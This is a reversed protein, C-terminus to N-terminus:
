PSSAARWDPWFNDITGETLRKQGGGDANMAYIDMLDSHKRDSAFVIRKGDPSWAPV